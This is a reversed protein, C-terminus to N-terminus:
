LAEPPIYGVTGYENHKYLTTANVEKSFGFDCLKVTQNEDLLVNEPKIDLHLINISHLYVVAQALEKM